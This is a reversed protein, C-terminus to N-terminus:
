QHEWFLQDNMNKGRDIADVIKSLHRAISVVEVKKSGSARTADQPLTDLAFLREITSGEIKKAALGTLHSVAAVTRAAGGKRAAAALEIMSSLSAGEDDVAIAIAGAVDGSFSLNIENGHREKNAILVEISEEPLKLSRALFNRFVRARKASGADPALVKVKQPDSSTEHLYKGVRNALVGEGSAHAVKIHLAQFIGVEQAQHLSYSVVNDVGARKLLQPLLAAGVSTGVTDMRDSRSYSSYPSVVTVEAAGARKAQWIAYLM